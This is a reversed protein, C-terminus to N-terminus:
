YSPQSLITLFKKFLDKYIASSFYKEYFKIDKPQYIYHNLLLPFKSVANLVPPTLISSNNATDEIKM